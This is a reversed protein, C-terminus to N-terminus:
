CLDYRVWGRKNERKLWVYARMKKIDIIMQAITKNNFLSNLKGKSKDRMLRMLSKVSMRPRIGKGASKYREFSNRLGKKNEFKKLDSLYHNTHIFPSAPHSINQLLATTEISIIRGKLDILTHTFASSRSISKLKNFGKQPSDTESMWRAIVNKPVGKMRGDLYHQSNIAQIIGNSNISIANGGLTNLYFIEFISLNKITKKLICISDTSKPDWDENHGILLGNNTVFTTCKNKNVALDDELSLAWLEMFPADAGKAYGELEEIYQPFFKKTAPLFKAAFEVKKKWDKARNKKLITKHLHQGFLLGEKVGLEYNSKATIEFYNKHRM